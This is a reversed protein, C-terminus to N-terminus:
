LGVLFRHSFEITKADRPIDWPTASVPLAVGCAVVSVALAMKQVFMRIRGRMSKRMARRLSKVGM